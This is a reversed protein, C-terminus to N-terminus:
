STLHRGWEVVPKEFYTWSFHSLSLTLLLALVTAGATPLDVLWPRGGLLVGHCAGLLILHYMYIGYSRDGLWRLWTMRLLRAPVGAKHLVCVLLIFVYLLACWTHLLGGSTSDRMGLFSVGLFAVLAGAYAFARRHVELRGLWDARCFLAALVGFSLADARSPLLVYQSFYNEIGFTVRLLPALVVGAALLVTLTERSCYRVLFPLTVYFQEEIALSWTAGMWNAGFTSYAAMVWNQMYTAYTWLPLPAGLLWAFRGDTGLMREAIAFLILILYYLPFIRCIRRVFFTRFFGPSHKADLLIGGILFGSLVFFLDVGSWGLRLFFLADEIGPNVIPDVRKYVYHYLLVM